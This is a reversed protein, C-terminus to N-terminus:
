GLTEGENYVPVVKVVMEGKEAEVTELGVEQMTTIMELTKNNSIIIKNLPHSSSSIRHNYPHSYPLKWHRMM